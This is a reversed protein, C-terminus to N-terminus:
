LRSLLETKKAAFEDESLIGKDRLQALREILTIVDDGAPLKLQAPAPPDPASEAAPADHAHPADDRTNKTDEDSALPLNEVRVLGKQSNFALSYRDSQQQSVGSIKYDQTDYVTIKGDVDLALRQVGPFYAYRMSNQSGSSSPQGLGSPWWESSSSDSGFFSTMTGFKSPEGGSSQQQSQSNAASLAQETTQPEHALLDSLETCLADVKSRLAQNFMDGVQTMGGRMWQGRGGLEPIDFQVGNGNGQALADLLAAATEASVGYKQAIKGILEQGQATLQRAM